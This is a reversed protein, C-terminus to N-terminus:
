NEMFLELYGKIKQLYTETENPLNAEWTEAHKRINGVGWNYAALCRRWHEKPDATSPLANQKLFGSIWQMYRACFAISDEPNFPDAGAIRWEDWTAPMAQALGMAGAHSIAKPNMLSEQYLQAKLQVWDFDCAQSYYQILSDYRDTQEM